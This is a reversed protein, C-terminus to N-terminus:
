MCRPPCQVWQSDLSASSPPLGTILTGAYEARTSRVCWSPPVVFPPADQIM